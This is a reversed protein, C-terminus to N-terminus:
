RLAAATLAAVQVAGGLAPEFGTFAVAAVPERVAVALAAQRAADIGLSAPLLVAGEVAV